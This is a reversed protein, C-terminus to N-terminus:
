RPVAGKAHRWLREVAQRLAEDPITGFDPPEGPDPFVRRRRSSRQARTPPLEGVFFRIDEVQGEGIERALAALIRGKLLHLENAWAADAVAVHLVGARLGTPRSRQALARGVVKPWVVFARFARGRDFPREGQIRDLLSALREAGDM